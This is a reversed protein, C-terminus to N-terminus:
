GPANAYDSSADAPVGSASLEMSSTIESTTETGGVAPPLPSNKLPNEGNNGNDGSTTLGTRWDRVAKLLEWVAHPFTACLGSLADWTYPVPQPPSQGDEVGRWDCIISRLRFADISDVATEKLALLQDALTPRKMAVEFTIGNGLDIVHWKPELLDKPIILTVSM